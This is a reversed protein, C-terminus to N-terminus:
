SWNTIECFIRVAEDSQLECRRPTMDGQGFWVTASLHDDLILHCVFADEETWHSDLQGERLAAVLRPLATMPSLGYPDLPPADLQLGDYELSVGGTLRARIGAIREPELITVSEGDEDLAYALTFALTREAYECRLAAQFALTDRAALADSFADFRTEGANSGCGALLLCVSLLLIAAFSRM